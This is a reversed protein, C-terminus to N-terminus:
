VEKGYKEMTKKYPLQLAERQLKTIYEGAKKAMSFAIKFEEPTLSGDMQLLALDNTRPCIAMPIDADSYNDEVKDMDLILKDGVKGVSVAYPTDIMPIGATALAVAAATIGAARTGGDSQLVEIFIDIESGPFEEVLIVHEFIEKTVKSIEISRRNPKSSGHEESGSFPAMSYRCKVVAREPDQTHRPLAEKPGYIAALIKNKGWEIYASGDANNLAFAEIKIQRLDNQGRGDLRKGNIILEPKDKSSGM